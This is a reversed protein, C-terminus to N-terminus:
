SRKARWMSKADDLVGKLRDYLCRIGRHLIGTAEFEELLTLCTYFKKVAIPVSQVVDYLVVCFSPKPRFSNDNKNGTCYQGRVGGVRLFRRGNFWSCPPSWVCVCLVDMRRCYRPVTGTSM